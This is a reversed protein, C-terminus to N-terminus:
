LQPVIDEWIADLLGQENKEEMGQTTIVTESEPLVICNQGYRGWMRYGDKENMWFFYGYGAAFDKKPTEDIRDIYYSVGNEGYRIGTIAGHMYGNSDITRMSPKADLILANDTM